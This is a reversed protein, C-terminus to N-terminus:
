VHQFKELYGIKTQQWNSQEVQAHRRKLKQLGPLHSLLFLQVSYRRRLLFCHMVQDVLLHVHM